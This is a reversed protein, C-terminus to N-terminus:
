GQYFNLLYEHFRFKLLVVLPDLSTYLELSTNSFTFLNFFCLIKIRRVLILILNWIVWINEFLQVCIIIVAGWFFGRRLLHLFLPGHKLYM